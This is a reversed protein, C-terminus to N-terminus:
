SCTYVFYNSQIKMLRLKIRNIRYVKVIEFITSDNNNYM